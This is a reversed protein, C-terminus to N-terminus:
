KKKGKKKKKSSIPLELLDGIEVLNDSGYVLRRIKNEVEIKDLAYEGYELSSKPCIM